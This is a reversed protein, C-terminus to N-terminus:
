RDAGELYKAEFAEVGAKLKEDLNRVEDHLRELLAEADELTACDYENELRTMIEEVRGQAKAHETEARDVQAKLDRIKQAVDAPM